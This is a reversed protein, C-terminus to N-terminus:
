RHELEAPPRIVAQACELVPHLESVTTWHCALAIVSAVGAIWGAFFACTPDRQNITAIFYAAAATLYIVAATVPYDLPDRSM